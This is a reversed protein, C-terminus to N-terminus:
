ELTTPATWSCRARTAASSAPQEVPQHLPDEHARQQAEQVAWPRPALLVDGGLAGRDERAVVERHDVREEHREHEVTLDHEDALRLVERALAELAAEQRAEEAAHPRDRDVARAALRALGGQTRPERPEGLALEEADVGLARATGVPTQVAALRADRPERDLRPGGHDGDRHDARVD